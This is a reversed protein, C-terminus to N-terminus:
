LRILKKVKHANNMFIEDFSPPLAVNKIELLDLNTDEHQLFALLWNLTLGNNHRNITLERIHNGDFEFPKKQSDFRFNIFKLSEVNPIQMETLGSCDIVTLKKLKTLSGFIKSSNRPHGQHITLEILNPFNTEITNLWKFSSMEAASYVTKLTLKQVSEMVKCEKLNMSHRSNTKIIEVQEINAFDKFYNMMSISICSLEKLTDRHQNIFLEFNRLDNCYVKSTMSLKTLKFKVSGLAKTAFLRHCQGMHFEKLDTQKAILSMLSHQYNTKYIKLTTLQTCNNFISLNENARQIELYKLQPLDLSAEQNFSTFGEIYLHEVNVFESLLTLSGKSLSSEFYITKINDKVPGVWRKVHTKQMANLPFYYDFKLAQYNRKATWDAEKLSTPIKVAVKKMYRSKSGIYENFAKNTSALNMLDRASLYDIIMERLEEAINFDGLDEDIDVLSDFRPHKAAPLSNTDEPNQKRKSM